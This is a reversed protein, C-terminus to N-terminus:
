QTRRRLFVYTAVLAFFCALAPWASGQAMVAGPAVSILFFFAAAIIAARSGALREALAFVLGITVAQMMGLGLGASLARAPPLAEMAASAERWWDGGTAIGSTLLVWGLAAGAAVIQGTAFGRSWWGRRLVMIGNVMVFIGLGYALAGFWTMWGSKAGPGFIGLALGAAGTALAIITFSAMISGAIAALEKWVSASSRRPMIQILALPLWVLFPVITSLASATERPLGFSAMLVLLMTAITNLCFFLLGTGLGLLTALLIGQGFNGAVEMLPNMKLAAAFPKLILWILTCSFLPWVVYAHLLLQRLEPARAIQARTLDFIGVDPPLRPDIGIINPAWERPRCLLLKLLAWGAILPNRPLRSLWVEKGRSWDESARLKAPIAANGADSDWYSYLHIRRGHKAAAEGIDRCAEARAADVQALAHVYDASALIHGADGFDMVRQAANIGDGSVSAVENVDIQRTVPGTNLGIRVQLSSTASIRAAIERACNLPSAVNDFFALAMGDGTPCRILANRQAASRATASEAAINQLERFVLAQEADALQSYGVVDM